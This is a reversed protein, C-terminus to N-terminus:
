AHIPIEASIITGQGPASEITFCGGLMEIRERMGFLGLHSEVMALAPTFGVGNDEVTVVVTQKRRSLLV